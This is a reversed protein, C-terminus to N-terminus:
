PRKLNGNKGFYNLAPIPLAIKLMDEESEQLKDLKDQLEIVKTEM